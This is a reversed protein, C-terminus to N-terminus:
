TQLALRFLRRYGPIDNRTRLRCALPIVSNIGAACISLWCDVPTGVQRSKGRNTNMECIDRGLTPLRQRHERLLQGIPFLGM